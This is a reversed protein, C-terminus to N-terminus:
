SALRVNSYLPSALTTKTRLCPASSSPVTVILAYSVLLILSAFVVAVTVIASAFLEALKAALALITQASVISM